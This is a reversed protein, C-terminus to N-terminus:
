RTALQWVGQAFYVGGVCLIVMRTWRYFQKDSMRDLLSRSLNTGIVAFVVAFAMVLWEATEHGAPRAVIVGFYVIKTLHGTVQAAAKTAVDPQVSWEIRDFHMRKGGSLWSAKEERPVYGDFKEFVALSGAVWESIPFKMPGSGVIETIPKFPDTKAIREPMICAVPSNSKGLALLMKTFPKNLRFRFTRDDLAELADLRGNIMQGMTDRAMWRTLSAIADRSLVPEGDHFRLGARLKFTWTRGDDTVEHGEAMQPKPDLKSDVGYLTDWILLSANRVVYQTGWIPDLNALNTQPVFRLLKTGAATALAPAALGGPTVMAAASGKLFDRRNM